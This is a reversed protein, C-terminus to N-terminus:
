SESAPLVIGASAPPQASSQQGADFQAGAKQTDCAVPAIMVATGWLVLADAPSSPVTQCAGEGSWGGGPSARRGGIRQDGTSENGTSTRLGARAM